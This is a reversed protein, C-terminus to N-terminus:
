NREGFEMCRVQKERRTGVEVRVCFQKLIELIHCLRELLCIFGFLVHHGLGAVPPCSKNAFKGVLLM